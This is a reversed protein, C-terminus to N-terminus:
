QSAKAAAPASAPASASVPTVAPAAVPAVPAVPAAVPKAPAAAKQIEPQPGVLTLVFPKTVADDSSTWTGRLTNGEQTGQWRGSIKRGDESEEMIFIGRGLDGALRIKQPAGFVFYEGEFGEMIDEKPQLHAQIKQEGLTGRLIVPRAFLYTPADDRSKIKRPARLRPPAKLPEIAAAPPTAPVAPVPVPEAAWASASILLSGIVFGRMTM